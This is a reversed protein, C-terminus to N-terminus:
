RKPRATLAFVIGVVVVLIPTLLGALFLFTVIASPSTGPM